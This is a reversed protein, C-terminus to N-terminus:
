LPGLAGSNTRAHIVLDPQAILTGECGVSWYCNVAQGYSLAAGYDSEVASRLITATGRRYDVVIPVTLAAANSTM